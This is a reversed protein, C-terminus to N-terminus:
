FAPASHGRSHRELNPPLYETWVEVTEFGLRRYIPFGAESSQLYAWTAGQAVGDAIARVTLASGFGRGRADELTGVNFIGVVDGTTMGVATAVPREGFEGIYCRVGGLRFLDNPTMQRAIEIPMSFSAACIEVSADSEEPALMRISLMEPSTDDLIDSPSEHVMLPITRTRTLGRSTALEVFGVHDDARVTVNYPAGAAAIEDLMQAAFEVDADVRESVVGNFMPAPVGSYFAAVGNERRLWAAPYARCTASFQMLIASAADDATTPV